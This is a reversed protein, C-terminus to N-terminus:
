NSITKRRRRISIHSTCDSLFVAGLLVRLLISVAIFAGNSPVRNVLGFFVTSLGVLLTAGVMVRRRKAVHWSNTGAFGQLVRSGAMSPLRLLNQM